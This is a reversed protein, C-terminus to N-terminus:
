IDYEDRRNSCDSFFLFFFVRMPSTSMSQEKTVRLVAYLNRSHENVDTATSLLSIKCPYTTADNWLPDFHRDALQCNARLTLNVTIFTPSPAM